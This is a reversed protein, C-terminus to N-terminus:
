DAELQREHALNATNVHGEGGDDWRIGALVISGLSELEIVLGRAFPLPGTHTATNKLWRASYKVRSGICVHPIDRPNFARFEAVTMPESAEFYRGNRDVFAAFAPQDERGTAECRKHRWPEGVLFGAATQVAPPVVGLMEDYRDATVERWTM